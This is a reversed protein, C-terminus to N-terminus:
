ADEDVFAGGHGGEEALEQRGRGCCLGCGADLNWRGEQVPQQLRELLGALGGEGM